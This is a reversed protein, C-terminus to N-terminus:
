AATVQTLATYGLADLKNPDWTPCRTRHPPPHANFHCVPWQVDEHVQPPHSPSGGWAKQQFHYVLATQESEQTNDVSPPARALKCCNTLLLVLILLTYAARFRSKGM